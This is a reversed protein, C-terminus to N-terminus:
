AKQFLLVVCRAEIALGAGISDLKEATKAKISVNDISTNLLEALRSRMKQIHPAMRPIQAIITLDVNGLIWDKFAPNELTKKLLFDGAADKYQPDTDPFFHGIDGLALAGILADILAHIAADADSHGLLGKECPIRCNCLYLARGEVLRHIDCGYGIRIPSNM